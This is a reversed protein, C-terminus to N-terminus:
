LLEEWFILGKHINIAARLTTYIGDRLYSNQKAGPIVSTDAPYGAIM